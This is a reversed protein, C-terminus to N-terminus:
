MNDRHKLGTTLHPIVLETAALAGLFDALSFSSLYVPFKEFNFNMLLVYQWNNKTLM